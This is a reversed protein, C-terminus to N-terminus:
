KRDADRARLIRAARVRTGAAEKCEQVARLWSELSPRSELRELECRLYEQMSKRQM